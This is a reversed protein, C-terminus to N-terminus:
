DDFDDSRAKGHMIGKTDSADEEIIDLPNFDAGMPKFLQVQSPTKVDVQPMVHCSAIHHPLSLLPLGVRGFGMWVCHFNM